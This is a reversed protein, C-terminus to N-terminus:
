SIANRGANTIAGAKNLFRGVILAAKATEWDSSTISTDRHAELYRRNTIGAYTNQYRSTYQLVLREDNALTVPAPLAMSQSDNPRAIITIGLDDGCLITHEVCVYGLPMAVSDSGEIRPDFASQPPVPMSRFTALELFTRYTRSGGSWYSDSRTNIPKDTIDVKITRGSYSPYTAKIIRDISENNRNTHLM